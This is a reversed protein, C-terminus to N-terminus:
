NGVFRDGILDLLNFAMLKRWVQIRFGESIYFLFFTVITYKGNIINEWVRFFNMM